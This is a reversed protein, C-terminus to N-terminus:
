DEKIWRVVLRMFGPFANDVGHQVAEETGGVILMADDLVSKHLTVLSDLPMPGIRYSQDAKDVVALWTPSMAALTVINAM